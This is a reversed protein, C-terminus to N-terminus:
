KLVSSYTQMKFLHTNKSNLSLCQIQLTKVDPGHSRKQSSKVSFEPENQDIHVRSSPARSGNEPVTRISGSSHSLLRNRVEFNIVLGSWCLEAEFTFSHLEETVILPGQWVCVCVCALKPKLKLETCLPLITPSQPYIMNTIHDTVENTRNGAVKQEKLQQKLNFFNSFLYIIWLDPDNYLQIVKLVSDDVLHRFEAAMGISEEMNM